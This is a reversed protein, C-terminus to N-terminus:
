SAHVPEAVSEKLDRIDSGALSFLEQETFVANGLRCLQPGFDGGAAM